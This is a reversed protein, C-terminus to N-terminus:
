ARARTQAHRRRGHVGAHLEEIGDPQEHGSQGHAGELGVLQRFGHLEDREHEVLHADHQGRVDGHDPKASLSVTPAPPGGGGESLKYFFVNENTQNVVIFVNKSPV